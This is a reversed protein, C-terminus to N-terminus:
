RISAPENPKRLSNGKEKPTMLITVRATANM